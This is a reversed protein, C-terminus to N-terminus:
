EASLRSKSAILLIFQELTMKQGNFDVVGKEYHLDSRIDNADVRAVGQMAAVGALMNATGEADRALAVADTQGGLQGQLTVLDQITGKAVVLKMDLQSLLQEVLEQPPVEVSKPATFDMALNLHSEGNATKLGLPALELHPKAQLLAMVLAQLQAQDADNLELEFPQGAQAAAEAQPAVKAKYFALLDRTANVDFDHFAWRMQLSGVPKDAISGQELTYDVSGKLKGDLEELSGLGVLNKLSVSPTSPTQLGIEGFRVESNGLYFGSAGKIGGTKFTINKALMRVPRDGERSALEINDVVGKADMRTGDFSGNGEITAGSFTLM